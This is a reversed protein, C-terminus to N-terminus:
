DRWDRFRAVVKSFLSHLTSKGAEMCNIPNMASLYGLKLHRPDGIGLIPTCKPFDGIFSAM